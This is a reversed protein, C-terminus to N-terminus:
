FPMQTAMKYDVNEVDVPVRLATQAHEGLEVFGLRFHAGLHLGRAAAQPHSRRELDSPPPERRGDRFERLATSSTSESERSSTTPSSSSTPSCASGSIGKEPSLLNGSM